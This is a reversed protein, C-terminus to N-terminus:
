STALTYEHHLGALLPDARVVYSKGRRHRSTPKVVSILPSDPIGPSL